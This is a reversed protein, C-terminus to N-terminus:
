DFLAIAKNIRNLTENKGLVEAIDFPSPSAKEGSLSARMPWLYNGIKLEKARLYTILADEISDNTWNEKPIKELLEYVKKLNDKTEEETMKKWVLLDKEYNLDRVFFFETLEGIDSLKKMREQELRIVNKLYKEEFDRIPKLLKKAKEEDSWYEELFPMTLDFLEDLNKQRIYYGNLYDLKETDFIAPSIGMDKYDFEKLLDDMSFIETEDSKPHWGLLVSFNILAEKLYGKKKYDEVAVDNHRKSLKGGGKNLTLPMHIFKPEQWGFDKYLLVNKPLSPIWEEGRIIHSIKMLHDDVVSAFQYTPIGNSKILIHDELEEARFVIEGRLEDFVRVEGETPMKQRIVFKEGNKIRKEVEEKSLNRCKRDYRPAKKQKQQEQRMKELREPSCFCHYAKGEDLLKQIYKNYIDLRETQIYPGYDGGIGPGEDFKIGIWDLIKFLSEVSGEVKRKQDTDEIRLILDGGLTKATLYDFLVTRLSGIHLFGTPSPAFRLRNKKM